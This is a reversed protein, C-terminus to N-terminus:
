RWQHLCFRNSCPHSEKFANVYSCGGAAFIAQIKKGGKEFTTGAARIFYTAVPLSPGQSWGAKPSHMSVTSLPEHDKGVGGVAYITKSEPAAVAGLYERPGNMPQDEKWSAAAVQPVLLLVLLM